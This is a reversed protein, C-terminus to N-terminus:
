TWIVLPISSAHKFIEGVFHQKQGDQKQESEHSKIPNNLISLDCIVFHDTDNNVVRHRIQSMVDM